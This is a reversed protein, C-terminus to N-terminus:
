VFVKDWIQQVKAAQKDSFRTRGDLGEIFDMEWGSLGSEAALLEVVMNVVDTDLLNTM